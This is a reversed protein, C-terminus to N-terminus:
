REQLPLWFSPSGPQRDSVVFLPWGDNYRCQGLTPTAGNDSADGILDTCQGATRADDCHYLALTNADPYFRASPTFSETYRLTNSFRIEDLYGRYAAASFDYAYKAGGLLLLPDATYGSLRGDRYSVDGPPSYGQADLQGDVFIKLQGDSLRRSVAVHHWANDGVPMLGCISAGSSGVNVGWIIRNGGLAIGWDGYDGAGYIDRDFIVNGALWANAQPCPPLPATNAEPATRLWFELTFDTAGLDALRPPADLDLKLHGAATPPTGTFYLALDTYAGATIPTLSTHAYFHALIEEWRAGAQAMYHSDWQGLCNGSLGASECQTYYARYYTRVLQQERMLRWTWVADIAANTSAYAVAPNYVQDCTSDYVDADPWKGGAAILSWAYMKVAMAGARLSHPEWSAIWENPLVHRLYERFDITEVTYPRTLDCYPWGTVRVRITSPLPLSRQDLMQSRMTPPLVTTTTTVTLTQRAVDPAPVLLTVPSPALQPTLLLTDGAVLRVDLLSWQGYGSATIIINTTIIPQPLPIAQWAFHGDSDTIATLGLTPATVLASAVPTASHQDTVTAEVHAVYLPTAPAILLPLCTITLTLLLRLSLTRTKLGTLTPM